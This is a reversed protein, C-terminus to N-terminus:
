HKLKRKLPTSYVAKMKIRSLYFLWKWMRFSRCFIDKFRCVILMDFVLCCVLVLWTCCNSLTVMRVSACITTWHIASFERLAAVSWIIWSQLSKVFQEDRMYTSGQISHIPEHVQQNMSRTPSHGSQKKEKCKKEVTYYEKQKLRFSTSLNKLISCYCSFVLWL